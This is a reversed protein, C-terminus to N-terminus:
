YIRSAHLGGDGISLLSHIGDMIRHGGFRQHELHNAPAPNRNWLMSTGHDEKARSNGCNWGAFPSPDSRRRTWETWSKEGFSKRPWRSSTTRASTGPSAGDSSRATCSAFPVLSWPADNQYIKIYNSIYIYQYQIYLISNCINQNNGLGLCYQWNTTMLEKQNRFLHGGKHRHHKARQAIKEMQERLRFTKGLKRTKGWCRQSLTEAWTFTRHLNQLNWFTRTCIGPLYLPEPPERTTIGCDKWTIQKWVTENTEWTQHRTKHNRSPTPCDRGEKRNM